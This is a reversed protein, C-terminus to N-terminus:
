YTGHMMRNIDTKYKGNEKEMDEIQSFMNKMCEDTNKANDYSNFMNKLKSKHGDTLARGNKVWSLVKQMALLDDLIKSAKDVNSQFKDRINKYPEAYKKDNLLKKDAIDKIDNFKYINLDSKTNRFVKDRINEKFDTVNSYVISAKKQVGLKSEKGTHIIEDKGKSLNNQSKYSESVKLYEDKTIQEGDKYYKGFSSYYTSGQYVWKKGENLFESFKLM